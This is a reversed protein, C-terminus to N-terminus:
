QADLKHYDRVEKEIEELLKQDEPLNRDNLESSKRLEEVRQFEQTLMEDRDLIQSINLLGDYGHYIRTWEEQEEKLGSVIADWRFNPLVSALLFACGGALAAGFVRFHNSGAMVAGIISVAGLFSKLWNDIRKYKRARRTYYRKHWDSLCVMEKLKSIFQEHNM